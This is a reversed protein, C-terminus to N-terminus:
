KQNLFGQNQSGNDDYSEFTSKWVKEFYITVFLASIEGIDDIPGEEDKIVRACEWQQIWTVSSAIDTGDKLDM